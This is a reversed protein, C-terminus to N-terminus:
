HAPRDPPRPVRSRASPPPATPGMAASAGAALAAALGPGDVQPPAVLEPKRTLEDCPYDEPRGVAVSTVSRADAPIGVSAVTGRRDSWVATGAGELTELVIRPRIEGVRRLSPLTPMNAPRDSEPLRGTVQVAYRGAEAVRFEVSVEYTASSATADLRRAMGASQAIVELDDAPRKAGAADAQRLITLRVPMLPERYVDVGTGNLAASHAERWQFSVRVRAGAPLEQATKQGDAVWSFFNLEPSWSGDPPPESGPTFEMVGNGDADRFLGSWTQGPVAAAAQVWLACPFPRDDLFRSLASAGGGPHGSDWVLASAVVRVGKLGLLAKQHELDRTLLGQFEREERDFDAQRKQYDERRKVAEDTESLDEFVRRREELLAQRRTDFRNRENAVDLFRQELAPSIASDGAVARAVTQLMYPAAPDVRILVLDAEPAAAAVARAFLTGQGPGPGAPYPDPELNINRERTLDVVRTGAPLGKGVLAEWGAFDAALVAVRNGKGRYGKASLRDIDSAKLAEKQDLGPRISATQALRPLRLGVVEPLAALAPALDARVTATVLTGLLGEIAIDPAAARLPRMWTRDFPAPTDALLIELRLPKNARGADALVDRLESSLKEQGPPAAAEAPRGAPAPLDPRVEVVRIAPMIAFPAPLNKAAPNERLDSLALDLQGTPLTGLIRTYGREDYGVAEVFKLAGLAEVTQAHLLRQRDPPLGRTLQIDVRVPQNADEPLKSGAPLLLIARVHRDLLLGRANAAPVTGRLRTLRVDIAEDPPPEENPDRRFGLGAFKKLMANFQAIRENQFADIRYRVVVDYTAPPPPAPPAAGLLCGLVVFAAPLLTHRSM